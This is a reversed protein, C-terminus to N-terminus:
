RQALLQEAEWAATTGAYDEVIERFWERATATRGEDQLNCALKLKNSARREADAATDVPESVIRRARPASAHREERLREMTERHQWGMIQRTQRVELELVRNYLEHEYAAARSRRAESHLLDRQGRSRMLDAYGYLLPGYGRLRGEQATSSHYSSGSYGPGTSCSGMSLNPRPLTQRGQAHALGGSLLIAAVAVASIRRISTTTSTFSANM